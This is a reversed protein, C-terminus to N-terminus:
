RNKPKDYVATGKTQAPLMVGLKLNELFNLWLLTKIFGKIEAFAYKPLPQDRVVGNRNRSL